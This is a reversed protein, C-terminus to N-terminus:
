VARLRHPLMLVLVEVPNTGRLCVGAYSEGPLVADHGTRILAASFDKQDSKSGQTSSRRPMRNAVSRSCRTISTLGVACPRGNAHRRNQV